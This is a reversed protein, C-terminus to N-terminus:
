LKLFSPLVSQVDDKSLRTSPFCSYIFDLLTVNFLSDCKLEKLRRGLSRLMNSFIGADAVVM